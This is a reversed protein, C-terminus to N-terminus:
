KNNEKRSEHAAYLNVTGSAVNGLLFATQIAVHTRGVGTRQAEGMSVAGDCMQINGMEHSAPTPEKQLKEGGVEQITGVSAPRCTM